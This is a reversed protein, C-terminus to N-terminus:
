ERGEGRLRKVEYETFELPVECRYRRHELPGIEQEDEGSGEIPPPPFEYDKPEEVIFDGPSQFIEDPVKGMFPLNLVVQGYHESVGQGGHGSALERVKERVRFMLIESDGMILVRIRTRGERAQRVAEDALRLGEFGRDDSNMAAELGVQTTDAGLIVMGRCEDTRALNEIRRTFVDASIKQPAQHYEELTIEM